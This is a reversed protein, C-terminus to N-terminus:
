LRIIKQIRLTPIWWRGPSKSTLTHLSFANVFMLDAFLPIVTPNVAGISIDSSAHTSYKATSSTRSTVGLLIRMAFFGSSALFFPLFYIM